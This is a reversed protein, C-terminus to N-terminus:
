EVGRGDRGVIGVIHAALNIIMCHADRALGAPLPPQPQLVRGMWFKDEHVTEDVYARILPGLVQGYKRKATTVFKEIWQRKVQALSHCLHFIHESDQLPDGCLNCEASERGGSLHHKRINTNLQGTRTILQTRTAVVAKSKLYPYEPILSHTDLRDDRLRDRLNHDTKLFRGEAESQGIVQKWRRMLGISRHWVMYRPVHVTLPPMTTARPSDIADKALEDARDNLRSAVDEANTHAKVHTVTVQMQQERCSHLATEFWASSNTHRTPDFAQARPNPNVLAAKRVSALHDTLVTQPSGPRQRHIRIM